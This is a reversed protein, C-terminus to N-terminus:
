APYFFFKNLSVFLWFYIHQAMGQVVFRAQQGLGEIRGRYVPELAVGGHSVAFVGFKISSHGADLALIAKDM